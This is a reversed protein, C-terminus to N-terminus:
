RREGVPAGSAPAIRTVRRSQQVAMRAGEPLAALATNSLPECWYEPQQTSQEFISLSLQICAASTRGSLFLPGIDALIALCRRLPALLTRARLPSEPFVLTRREPRFTGAGRADPDVVFGRSRCDLHHM